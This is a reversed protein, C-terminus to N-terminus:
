FFGKDKDQAAENEESYYYENPIAVTPADWLNDLDYINRSTEQFIHVIFDGLDLLIWDAGNHTGEKSVVNIERRQMQKIIENSMASSQSANTASALVYYDALSTSNKMDLIKLNIGKFNGLIWTTAMALNLPFELEKSDVIQDVNKEVYENSM